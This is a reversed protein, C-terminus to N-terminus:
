WVARTVSYNSADFSTTATSINHIEEEDKEPHRKQRRMKFDDRGWEILGVTLNLALAKDGNLRKLFAPWWWTADYSEILPSSHTPQRSLFDKYNKGRALYEELSSAYHHVRLVDELVAFPANKCLISDLVRHPSAVVGTIRKPFKEHSLDVICKGPGSSQIQPYLRLQLTNLPPLDNDVPLPIAGVSVRRLGWCPQAYDQNWEVLTALSRDLFHALTPPPPLIEKVSEEPYQKTISGIAKKTTSPDHRRPPFVLQGKDSTVPVISTRVHSGPTLQMKRHYEQNCNPNLRREKVSCGTKPNEYPSYPHYTLYEDADIIMTWSWKNESKLFNLCDRYFVKQRWILAHVLREDGMKLTTGNKFVEHTFNWKQWEGVGEAFYDDVTWVTYHLDLYKQFQALIPRPDTISHPDLAIILRELPLVQMHYALWEPLAMNEDRAILCAAWTFPPADTATANYDNREEPQIISASENSKKATFPAAATTATTTTHNTEEQQIVTKTENTTNQKSKQLAIGKEVAIGKETSPHMITGIRKVSTSSHLLSVIATVVTLATLLHRYRITSLADNM